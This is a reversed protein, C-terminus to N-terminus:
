LVIKFEKIFNDYWEDLEKTDFITERKIEVIPDIKELVTEQKSKEILADLEPRIYGYLESESAHVRHAIDHMSPKLEGFVANQNVITQDQM